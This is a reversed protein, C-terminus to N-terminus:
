QMQEVRAVASEFLKDHRAQLRRFQALAIACDRPKRSRNVPTIPSIWRTSPWYSNETVARFM